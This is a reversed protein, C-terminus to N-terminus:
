YALCLLHAAARAPQAREIIYFVMGRHGTERRHRALAKPMNENRRVVVTAHPAITTCTM